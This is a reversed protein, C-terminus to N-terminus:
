GTSNLGYEIKLDLLRHGHVRQEHLNLVIVMFCDSDDLCDILVHEFHGDGSRWVYQVSGTSCDHGCFDENPISDVYSWFDFPAGSDPRIRQMPDRCTQRFAVEDLELPILNHSM